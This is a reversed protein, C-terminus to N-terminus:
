AIFPFKEDVFFRQHAFVTLCPKIVLPTCFGAKKCFVERTVSTKHTVAHM